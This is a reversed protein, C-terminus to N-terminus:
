WYVAFGGGSLRPKMDSFPVWTVHGDLYGVNGGDPYPLRVLHNAGRRTDPGFWSFGMWSRNLDCWLVKEVPHDTMMTATYPGPRPIEVPQYGLHGDNVAYVYGWVSNSNSPQNNWTWFADFNWQRQNSPCYFMKRVMGHREVLRERAALTFWYSSTGSHLVPFRGGESSAIGITTQVFTRVNAACQVRRAREMARSVAPMMLMILLMIIAVVVLLEVLTFGAPNLERCRLRM